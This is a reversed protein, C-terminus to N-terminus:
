QLTITKPLSFWLLLPSINNSVSIKCFAEDMDLVYSIELIVVKRQGEDLFAIDSTNSINCFLGHSFNFWAAIVRYLKYM